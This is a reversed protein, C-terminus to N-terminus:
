SSCVLPAQLGALKAVVKSPGPTLCDDPLASTGGLLFRMPTVRRLPQDIMRLRSSAVRAARGDQSATAVVIMESWNLWKLIRAGSVLDVQIGPGERLSHCVGDAGHTGCLHHVIHQLYRGRCEISAIPRLPNGRGWRSARRDMSELSRNPRRALGNWTMLPPATDWRPYSQSEYRM